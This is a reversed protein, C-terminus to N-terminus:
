KKNTAQLLQFCEKLNMLAMLLMLHLLLLTCLIRILKFGSSPELTKKFDVPRTKNSNWANGIDGYVSFYLKDVYFQLFKFDIDEFVPVRYYINAHAYRNGGIAYFPYGKMGPFGSIYFDFFNDQTTGLIAGCKIKFGFAHSNFIQFSEDWEGELRHFRAKQFVTIVSGTNQDIQMEPNLENFEYDYKLRIYRGIPNIDDNRYPKFDSHSYTLSLDRGKFYNTSSSPVQLGTGPILFTNFKSSYSSYSFGFKMNHSSNIIKFAMSFDFQMLDYTIDVPITDIGALFKADTKRSVNYGALQFAPVFGVTKNFFDKFFPVGNNYDFELFLDRELLKNISAGGFIGMKGLVDQSYFYIGPKVADIFKGSKNYTDFRLVPIIFLPTAVNRYKKPQSVKYTDDNFNKLTDWNFKNKPEFSNFKNQAAYKPITKDPRIYVANNQIISDDLNKIDKLQFIKYGSSKWGSYVLNSNKDISPMFAGGKVNTVQELKTIRDAPSMSVEDQVAYRYINFIGTRDSSLYIYKGDQSYVPCRFDAETDTFLFETKSLSVDYRAVSRHDTKSYDFIIYRSDPSWRPSYIQEGHKFDTLLTVKQLRDGSPNEAICLNQTGDKNIVFSLMKGDPSYSPAHARM